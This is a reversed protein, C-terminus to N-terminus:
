GERPQERRLAHDSIYEEISDTRIKGSNSKSRKEACAILEEAACGAGDVKALADAAVRAERAYSAQGLLAALESALRRATVRRFPVV